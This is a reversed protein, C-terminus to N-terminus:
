GYEPGESRAKAWRRVHAAHSRASDSLTRLYEARHPQTQALLDLTAAVEEETAAITEAM